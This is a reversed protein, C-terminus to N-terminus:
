SIRKKITGFVAPKYHTATAAFECNLLLSVNILEETVNFSKRQKPLSVLEYNFIEAM